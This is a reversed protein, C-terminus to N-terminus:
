ATVRRRTQLRRVSVWAAFVAAMGMPVIVDGNVAHVLADGAVATWCIVGSVLLFTRNM